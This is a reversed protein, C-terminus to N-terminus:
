NLSPKSSGPNPLLGAIQHKTKAALENQFAILEKDDIWRVAYSCSSDKQLSAYAGQSAMEQFQELFHTSINEWESHSLDRGLVSKVAQSFDLAFNNSLRILLHHPNLRAYHSYVSGDEAILLTEFGYQNIGAIELVPSPLVEGELTIEKDLLRAAYYHCNEGGTFSKTNVTILFKENFVLQPAPRLATASVDPSDSSDLNVEDLPFDENLVATGGFMIREILDKTAAYFTKAYNETSDVLPEFGQYAEFNPSPIPNEVSHM